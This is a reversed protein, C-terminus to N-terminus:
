GITPQQLKYIINKVLSFINNLTWYLVLASPSTYLLVLFLLAMGFLQIKERLLFGKTYVLGAVVNIITMVIPLVNVTYSGIAMLSDPKSLDTIFFFSVGQLADLHSLFNYAAIFLPVQILLSISSRLAYAPHYNNQRYYTSLIMYQEDGFFVSKIRDVGGQLKKRINRESQQIKEAINYLPFSLVSITISIGIISFGHSGSIRCFLSYIFSVVLEIPYILVTYLLSMM